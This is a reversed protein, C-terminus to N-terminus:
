RLTSLDIVFRDRVDSRLMREYADLGIQVATGIIEHGPVMPFM